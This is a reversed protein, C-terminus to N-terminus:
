GPRSLPVAAATPGANSHSRAPDRRAAVRARRGDSLGSVKSWTGLDHPPLDVTLRFRSALGISTDNM